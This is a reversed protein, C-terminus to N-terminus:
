MFWGNFLSFVPSLFSATIAYSSSGPPPPPPPPAALGGATSPSPALDHPWAAPVTNDTPPPVLAPATKPSLTAGPTSVTLSPKQGLSCHQSFNCIYDHDGATALTINEPGSTIVSGIANASSCSDFSARPVELVDHQSTKSAACTVYAGAGGQLIAWGLSDGVVHATQALGSPLLYALVDGYSTRIDTALNHGISNDLYNM